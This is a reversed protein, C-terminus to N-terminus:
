ARLDIIKLNQNKIQTLLDQSLSNEIAKDTNQNQTLSTKANLANEDDNLDSKILVSENSSNEQKSAIEYGQLATM